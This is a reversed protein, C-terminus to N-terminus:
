EPPRLRVTVRAPASDQDSTDRAVAVIELTTTLTGTAPTTPQWAVAWSGACPTGSCLFVRGADLAPDGTAQGLITVQAVGADDEAQFVLTFTGSVVVQTPVVTLILTPPADPPACAPLSVEAAPSLPSVGAANFAVLTYRYTHGCAVGEDVFRTTNAPALGISAEVDERYVRFADEDESRDEWTLRVANDGDVVVARLTAPAAPPASEQALAEVQVSLLLEPGFFQGDPAQLRWRSAYTGMQVPAWFTLAVDTLEGAATPPIPVANPAGLSDGDVLVLEYGVGWACSGSNRVQWVKDLRAGPPFPTGPPITVDTVFIADPICDPEPLAEAPAKVVQVTISARGLAAGEAMHATVQVQQEGVATPQWQQSLPLSTQGPEIRPPVAQTGILTGGVHFEVHDIAQLGSAARLSAEIAVVQGVAVQSGEAPSAIRVQVPPPEAVTAIDRRAWERWLLGAGVLLILIATVLLFWGRRRKVRPAPPQTATQLPEAHPDGPEWSGGRNCFWGGGEADPLWFTGQEDRLLLKAVELRFAADDLRGSDRMKQLGHFRREAEKFDM